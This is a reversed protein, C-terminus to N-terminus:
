DDPAVCTAAVLRLAGVGLLVGAVAALRVTRDTVRSWQHLLRLSVHDPLVRARTSGSGCGSDSPSVTAAAPLCRPLARRPTLATGTHITLGTSVATHRLPVAGAGLAPAGDQRPPRGLLRQVRDVGDRLGDRGEIRWGPLRDGREALSLGTQGEEVGPQGPGAARLDSSCVDSSWDSVLRTHRRRSSFFFFVLVGHALVGDVDLVDAFGAEANPLRALAARMM